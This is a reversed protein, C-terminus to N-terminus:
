NVTCGVQSFPPMKNNYISIRPCVLDTNFFLQKTMPEQLIIFLEFPSSFDSLNNCVVSAVLFTKIITFIDKNCIFDSLM